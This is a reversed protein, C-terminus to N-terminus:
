AAAKQPTIPGPRQKTTSPAPKSADTCSASSGTPSCACRPTQGVERARLQDYYARAGPSAQLASFAQSMLADVLRDNHVFRALVVKKKGSARTIPSTGAYNKRAKADGRATQVVSAGAHGLLEALASAVGEDDEVLAASAHASGEGRRIM